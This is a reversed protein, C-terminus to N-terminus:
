GNRETLKEGYVVMIPQMQMREVSNIGYLVGDVDMRCESTVDSRLYTTFTVRDPNVINQDVMVESAHTIAVKGYVQALPTWSQEIAGRKTKGQEPKLITVKNLFDGINVKDIGRNTIM